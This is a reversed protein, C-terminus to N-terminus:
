KTRTTHSLILVLKNAEDFRFAVQPGTTSRFRYLRDDMPHTVKVVTGFRELWKIIQEVPWDKTLRLVDSFQAELDILIFDSMDDKM